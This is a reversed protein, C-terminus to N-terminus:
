RNFVLVANDKEVLGIEKGYKKSKVHLSMYMSKFNKFGMEECSTQITKTSDLIELAQFLDYVKKNRLGGKGILMNINTPKDIIKFQDVKPIPM